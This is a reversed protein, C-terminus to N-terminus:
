VTEGNVPFHCALPFIWETEIIRRPCYGSDIHVCSWIYDQVHELPIRNDFSRNVDGNYLIDRVKLPANTYSTVQINHLSKLGM